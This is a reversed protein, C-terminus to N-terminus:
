FEEKRVFMWVFDDMNYRYAADVSVPPTPESSGFLWVNSARATLRRRVSRHRGAHSQTLNCGVWLHNDSIIFIFPGDNSLNISWDIYQELYEAINSGRPIESLTDQKDEYFSQAAVQMTRLVSLINSAAASDHRGGGPSSMAFIAGLLIFVCMIYVKAFSPIETLVVSLAAEVVFAIIFAVLLASLLASILELEGM